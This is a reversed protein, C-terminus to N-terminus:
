GSGRIGTQKMSDVWSDAIRGVSHVIGVAMSADIIQGRTVAGVAYIAKSNTTINKSTPKIIHHTKPDINISGTKYTTFEM